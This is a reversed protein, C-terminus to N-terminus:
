YGSFRPSRTTGAGGVDRYNEALRTRGAHSEKREGARRRREKRAVKKRRAPVFLDM